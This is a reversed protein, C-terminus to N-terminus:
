SRLGGAKLDDRWRIAEDVHAPKCAANEEQGAGRPAKMNRSVATDVLAKAMEALYVLSWRGDEQMSAGGIGLDVATALFMSACELLTDTQVGEAVSFLATPIGAASFYPLPSTHETM